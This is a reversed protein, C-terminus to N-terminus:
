VMGGKLKVIVRQIVVAAEARTVENKPKFTKDPYGSFIGEACLRTVAEKAYDSIDNEDIFEVNKDMKLDLSSLANYIIKAMDQRNIKENPNFKGEDNGSILNAKKAACVYSYFWDKDSVDSFPTEKTNEIPLNLANVILKIFEARKISREPEFTNEGTGDIYGEAFLEAIAEKAWEYESIDKFDAQRLNTIEESKPISVGGVAVSGRGSSKGGSGGSSSQSARKLTIEREAFIYENVAAKIVVTQTPALKSITMEGSEEDINVGGGEELSWIIKSEIENGAKDVVKATYKESAEEGSSLSFSTEGFVTVEVNKIKIEFAKSLNNYACNITVTADDAGADVSLVGDSFEIGNPLTDIAASVAAESIENGKQDIVSFTYNETIKEALSVFILDKGAVKIETPVVEDTLTVKYTLTITNELKEHEIEATIIIEGEKADKTVVLCQKEGDFSVGETEDVSFTVTTDNMVNGYQDKLYAFYLYEAKDKSKPIIVNMDGTIEAKQPVGEPKIFFEAMGSLGNNEAKVTVRVGNKETVPPIKLIGNESVSFSSLLTEDSVNYISFTTGELVEDMKVGGQDATYVFLEADTNNVGDSYITYNEAEVSLSSVVPENYASQITSVNEFSEDMTVIYKASTVAVAMNNGWAINYLRHSTTIGDITFEAIDSDKFSLINEKDIKYVKAKNITTLLFCNDAECMSIAGALVTDVSIFKNKASDFYAVYSDDYSNGTVCYVAFLLDQSKSYYMDYIRNVSLNDFDAARATMTKTDVYLAHVSGDWAVTSFYMLGGSFARAGRWTKETKVNQEIKNWNNFDTNDTYYIGASSDTVFIYGDKEAITTVNTQFYPSIDYDTWNIGDKSTTIQKRSTVAMFMNYSESWLIGKGGNGGIAGGGDRRKVWGTGNKSTYIHGTAGGAAFMKLKESYCIDGFQQFSEEAAFVCMGSVAFFVALMIIATIKKMVLEEQLM